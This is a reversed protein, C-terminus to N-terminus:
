DSFDGAPGKDGTLAQAKQAIKGPTWEQPDEVRACKPGLDYSNAKLIAEVAM